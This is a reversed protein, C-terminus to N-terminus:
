INSFFAERNKGVSPRQKSPSIIQVRTERNQSLANAGFVDLCLINYKENKINSNFMQKLTEGTLFSTFLSCNTICVNNPYTQNPHAPPINTRFTVNTRNPSYPMQRSQLLLTKSPGYGTKEPPVHTLTLTHLGGPSGDLLFM